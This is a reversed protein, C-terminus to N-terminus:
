GEGLSQKIRSAMLMEMNPICGTESDADADARNEFYALCDLLAEHWDLVIKEVASLKATVADGMVGAVSGDAAVRGFFYGVGAQLEHLPVRINDPLEARFNMCVERRINAACEDITVQDGFGSFAEVARACREREALREAFLLKAIEETPTMGYKRFLETAANHIDEPIERM